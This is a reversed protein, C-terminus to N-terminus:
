VAAVLAGTTNVKPLKGFSGRYRLPSIHPKFPVWPIRAGCAHATVRPDSEITTATNSVPIVTWGSRTPCVTAPYSMISSRIKELSSLARSASGDSGPSQSDHDPLLQCPVCTLPVIAATPFLPTPTIPTAGPTLICVTRTRPVPPPYVDSMTAPIVHADPPLTEPIGAFRVGARTILIDNPPLPEHLVASCIAIEPAILRPVTTTTAAPLLLASVDPKLGALQLPTIATAATPLSPM